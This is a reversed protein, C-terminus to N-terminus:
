EYRHESEEGRITSELGSESIANRLEILLAPKTLAMRGKTACEWVTVVRWDMSQLESSKKLDRTRNNLLKDQWFEKRSKPLRFLPCNSHGHWFCGNVFVVTRYRPLVIDPRGPLDKRHLRFRYGMQHLLKRIRIKPRTNKSAIGAMMKSRKAPSVIDAM